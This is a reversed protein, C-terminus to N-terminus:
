SIVCFDKQDLNVPETKGEDTQSPKGLKRQNPSESRQQNSIPQEPKQIATRPGNTIKMNM